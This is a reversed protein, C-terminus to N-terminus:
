RRSGRGARARLMPTLEAHSPLGAAVSEVRQDLQIRRRVREAQVVLLDGFEVVGELGGRERPRPRRRWRQCGSRQQVIHTVQDGVVVDSEVVSEGDVGRVFVDAGSEECAPETGLHGPRHRQVYGCLSVQACDLEAVEIRQRRRRRAAQLELASRHAVGVDGREFAARLALRCDEHSPPVIPGLDGAQGDGVEVRVPGQQRPEDNRQRRRRLRPGHVVDPDRRPDHRRVPERHRATRDADRHQDRPPRRQGARRVGLRAGGWRLRRAAIEEADYVPTGVNWRHGFPDVLWASRMGHGEEIPRQVVAGGRGAREVFDEVAAVQIVVSVSTQSGDRIPAVVGLQPAEDSLHLVAGAVDLEAHGIRGEWPIVNGVNAAFFERYWDLAANADHVCLYPTIVQNMATSRDNGIATTTADIVTNDAATRAPLDITIRDAPTGLARRVCVKLRSAFVPDVPDTM